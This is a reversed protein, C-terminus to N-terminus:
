WVATIPAGEIVQCGPMFRDEVDALRAKGGMWTVVVNYRQAREDRVTFQMPERLPDFPVRMQVLLLQAPDHALLPALQQAALRVSTEDLLDAMQLLYVVKWGRLLARAKAEQLINPERGDPAELVIQAREVAEFPISHGFWLSPLPAPMPVLRMRGFNPHELYHPNEFDDQVANLFAVLDPRPIEAGSMSCGM